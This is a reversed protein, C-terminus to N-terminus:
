KLLEVVALSVLASIVVIVTVIRVGHPIAILPRWRREELRHLLNSHDDLREQIQVLQVQVGGKRKRDRM